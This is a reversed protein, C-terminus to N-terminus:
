DVVMLDYTWKAMRSGSRGVMPLVLVGNLLVIHIYIVGFEPCHM